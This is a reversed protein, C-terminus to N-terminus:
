RFEKTGTLRLTAQHGPDGGAWVAFIYPDSLRGITYGAVGDSINGSSGTFTADVIYLDAITPGIYLTCTAEKTVPGAVKVSASVPLWYEHSGDPNM